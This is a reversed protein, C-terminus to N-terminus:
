GEVAAALRGRTLWAALSGFLASSVSIILVEIKLNLESKSNPGGFFVAWITFSIGVVLGVLMYRSFSPNPTAEVWTLSAFSIVMFLPGFLLLAVFVGSVQSIDGRVVALFGFILSVATAIFSRGFILSYKKLM